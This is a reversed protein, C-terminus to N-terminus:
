FEGSAAFICDVCYFVVCIFPNFVILTLFLFPSMPLPAFASFSKQIKDVSMTKVKM